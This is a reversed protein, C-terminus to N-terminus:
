GSMRQKKYYPFKCVCETIIELNLLDSKEKKNKLESHLNNATRQTKTFTAYKAPVILGIERMRKRSVSAEVFNENLESLFHYILHSLENPIHGVLEEEQEKFIGIAHKDYELAKERTDKRTLVTEGMILTWCRKYVHHGRIVSNFEIKYYTGYKYFTAQRAMKDFCVM